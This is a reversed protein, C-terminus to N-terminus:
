LEESSLLLRNTIVIEGIVNMAYFGVYMSSDRNKLILIIIVYNNKFGDRSYVQMLPHMYEITHGCLSIYVRAHTYTADPSM